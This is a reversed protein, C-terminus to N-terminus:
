LLEEKEAESRSRTIEVAVYDFDADIPAYPKRVRVCIEKIPPFADLVANAVTQAAAELLDFKRSLFATRATKLIKAYSVTDEVRDTRCPACLSLSCSIDLFFPQGEEKESPNVGHYAYLHLGQIQIKDM